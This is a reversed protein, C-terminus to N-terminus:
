VRIGGDAHVIDTTDNELVYRLVAEALAEATAERLVAASPVKFCAKGEKDFYVHVRTQITKLGHYLPSPDKCPEKFFVTDIYLASSELTRIGM